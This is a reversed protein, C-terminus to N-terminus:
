EKNNRKLLFYLAGVTLFPPALTRYIGHHISESYAAPSEDPIAPFGLNRFSVAKSTLYLVGTGGGEKEGYVHPLYKDPNRKIRTKAEELLENRYGFIIAGAPCVDACATIGNKPLYSSLCLDCKVIKPFAKGWEFKPVEFPCAIMCYRCGICRDGRWYVIGTKEDKNMASVPCASVCAPDVCHMCQRKVFSSVNGKESRYVKIITKTSATLDTAEDYIRYEDLEPPLNNAKKCAVVCSKCGICKTSDYLMGYWYDPPYYYKTKALSLSPFTTVAAVSAAGTFLKKLFDRRTEVNKGEKM